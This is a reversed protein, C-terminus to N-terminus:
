LFQPSSDRQNTSLFPSPPTPGDTVTQTQGSYPINYEHAHPFTSPLQVKDIWDSAITRNIIFTELKVIKLHKSVDSRFPTSMSKYVTIDHVSAPCPGYVHCILGNSINALM